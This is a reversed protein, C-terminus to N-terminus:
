LSQALRKAEVVFSKILELGGVWFDPESTDIGLPALLNKPSDSGGSALLKLYKPVFKEGEERYQQYLSLVLLEGFAYAYCYFPAHIFHSIYLWWWSYNDTLEVASGHMPQNAETWLQGIREATLEGESRRAAHLKQEFNTLVIQRFVTAFSDEIKSCLLSLKVKPDREQEVLEKFVLMEGFVSATESLTLPTDWQLYGLKRSLYAHLAHGLEHAVVTVDRLRDNFNTLIYPHVDPVTSACFAGGQKGARIEADIWAHSFCKEAVERVKPSFAGYANLVIEQCRKWDCRPMVEPFVPAYRDYDYLRDLGLLKAKLAYYEQVLPFYSNCANILADVTRQNIENALNRSAMPTAFSRLRDNTKHEQVLTNFIYTLVRSQSKLGETLGDAAARRATRDPQYLHSLTAELNLKETHGNLRVDFLLSSTVEDFLRVFARSGTNAKEQLIKEEPESLRYPKFKRVVELYHRYKKLKPTDVLRLATASSVSMWELDFFLLHQKIETTRELTSQLLAGHKPDQSQGAHLLSAYHVPRSMQVHIEELKELAKLLKQPQITKRSKIKGRYAKEFAVARELARQLDRDIAPDALSEYLDTLDWVIGTASNVYKENTM